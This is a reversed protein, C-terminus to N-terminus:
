SPRSTFAYALSYHEHNYFLKQQKTDNFEVVINVFHALKYPYYKRKIIFKLRM